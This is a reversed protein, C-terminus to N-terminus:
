AAVQYENILGGLVPKRRITMGAPAPVTPAPRLPASQDLARHPRHTNYHEVYIELVRRLQTPGLILTRDLCERRVTSIWREAYANAVPTRVPTKIVRVGESTLVADFASTFKTDRDRILFRWGERGDASGDGDGGHCHEVDEILDAMLNRAQQAVWEGTPNETIGALHVRRTRLEIFFLVYLHRLGVTDVTFFDCAVIGSAQARLFERWSQGFRRPAPDIGARKLVAWVTSPAVRFGLGVLEGHIRRYGWTPDEGAMRVVTRRIEDAIRPRGPGRHPVRWHKAVLQRHWCLVTAPKVLILGRVAGSSLRTLIALVARDATDLRPRGAQRQLVLLQHRLVLIEAEKSLDRRLVLPALEALRRFGRYVLRVLM